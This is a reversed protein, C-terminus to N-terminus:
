GLNDTMTMLSANGGAATTNITVTKETVLRHLLQHDAPSTVLASIAGDRAAMWQASLAKLPNTGEIVATALAPHALLAKLAPLKV